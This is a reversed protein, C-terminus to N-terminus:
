IGGDLGHKKRGKQKKGHVILRLIMKVIFAVIKAAGIRFRDREPHEQKMMM